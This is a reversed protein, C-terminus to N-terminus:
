KLGDPSICLGVGETSLRVLTGIKDFMRRYRERRLLLILFNRRSEEEPSFTLRALETTRLSLGVCENAVRVSTGVKRIERRRKERCLLDVLTPKALIGEELFLLNICITFIFEACFFLLGRHVMQQSSKVTPSLTADNSQLCMYWWSHITGHIWALLVQGM